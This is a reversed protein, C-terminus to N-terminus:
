RIHWRLEKRSSTTHEETTEIDENEDMKEGIRLLYRKFSQKMQKENSHEPYLANRLESTLADGGREELEDLIAQRLREQNPNFETM